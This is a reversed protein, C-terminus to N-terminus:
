LVVNHGTVRWLIADAAITDHRSRCYITRDVTNTYQKVENSSIKKDTKLKAKQALKSATLPNKRLMKTV